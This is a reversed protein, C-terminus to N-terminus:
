KIADVFIVDSIPSTQGHVRAPIAAAAEEITISTNRLDVVFSRGTWSEKCDGASACGGVSDHTRCM